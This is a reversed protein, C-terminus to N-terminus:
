RGEYVPTRKEAFAAPGELADDTRLVDWFLDRELDLGQEFGVSLGGFGARRAARVAVPGKGAISMALTLASALFQEVPVIRNVPGLRLADDAGVPEGSLIMEMAAGLPVARPLRQTGGAGPIIAWKTEALGFSAQPSAIRINCALAIELGGAIAHGNVAAITPKQADFFGTMGVFVWPPTERRRAADHFPPILERLDAGACFSQDSAGTIVACRLSDDNEYRAFAATLDENHQPDLCNMREPRDITIIAVHGTVEFKISM